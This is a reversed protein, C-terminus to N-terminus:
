QSGRQKSLMEAAFGEPSKERSRSRKRRRYKSQTVYTTIPRDQQKESKRCRVLSGLAESM